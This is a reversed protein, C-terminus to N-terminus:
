QGDGGGARVINVRRRVEGRTMPTRQAAEVRGCSVCSFVEEVDGRKEDRGVDVLLPGGCRLCDLGTDMSM